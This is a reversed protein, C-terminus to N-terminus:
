PVRDVLVDVRELAELLREGVADVDAGHRFSDLFAGIPECPGDRLRDFLDSAHDRVRVLTISTIGLTSAASASGTSHNTTGPSRSESSAITSHHVCVAYSAHRNRASAPTGSSATSGPAPSRSTTSSAPRTALTRSCSSTSPPSWSRF